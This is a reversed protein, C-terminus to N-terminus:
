HQFTAQTRPLRTRQDQLVDAITQDFSRAPAWGFEARFRDFVGQAVAVDSPRMRSPDPVPEVPAKALGILADMISRISRTEGSGLNFVSFRPLPVRHRIVALYADIIDEVDSFDRSADLNGVKIQGGHGSEELRAVQAAFGPVVFREDQGPGSHNFLRLAIVSLTDSALDNLMYECAAKTRAYPSAPALPANEDCPGNNFQRGYVEGSSAFIFRVETDLSLAARALARTGDFNSRWVADTDALTAGVSSLAALHVIVTPQVKQVLAMCADVDRLDLALAGDVCQPGHVPVVCAGPEAIALRSVLKQGVFGSAGTVLIRPEARHPDPAM